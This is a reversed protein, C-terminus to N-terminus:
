PYVSRSHRITDRVGEPAPVKVIKILDKTNPHRFHNHEEPNIPFAHGAAGVYPRLTM